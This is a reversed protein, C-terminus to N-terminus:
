GRRRLLTVTMGLLGALLMWANAPEPVAAAMDVGSLHVSWAGGMQDNNANMNYGPQNWNALAIPADDDYTFGNTLHPGIADNSYASLTLRYHGAALPAFTYGDDFYGASLSVSDGGDDFRFQLAHTGDFLTLQPDFNLGSMWSDTWISVTSATALSFDFLVVDKHNAIQGTFDFDAAQAALSGCLALAALTARPLFNSTTMITSEL